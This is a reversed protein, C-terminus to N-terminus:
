QRVDLACVRAAARANADVGPHITVIKSLRFFEHCVDVSTFALVGAASLLRLARCRDVVASAATPTFGDCMDVVLISIYELRNLQLDGLRGHSMNLATLSHGISHVSADMVADPDVDACRVIELQCLRTCIVSAFGSATVTDCGVVSLSLLSHAKSLLMLLFGDNVGACEELTVAVLGQWHLPLSVCPGSPFHVVHWSASSIV